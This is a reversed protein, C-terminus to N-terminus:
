KKMNLENESCVPTFGTGWISGFYKWRQNWSWTVTIRRRQCCKDRNFFTHFQFNSLQTRSKTVGHVVSLGHISSELGSYQLPYEKGEAPSRGLWLNSGALNCASEKGASGVLSARSAGSFKTNYPTVRQAPLILRPTLLWSRRLPYWTSCILVKNFFYSSALPNCKPCSCPYFTSDRGGCGEGLCVKTSEELIGRVHRRM